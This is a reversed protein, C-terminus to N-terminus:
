AWNAMGYVGMIGNGYNRVRMSFAAQGLLTIWTM